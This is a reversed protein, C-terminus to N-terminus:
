IELGKQGMEFRKRARNVVSRGQAGSSHDADSDGGDSEGLYGHGGRQEEVM